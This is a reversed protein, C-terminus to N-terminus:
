SVLNTKAPRSLGSRGFSPSGVMPRIGSGKWLIANETPLIGVKALDHTAAHRKLAEALIEWDEPTFGCKKFWRAKEHGAPHNPSLLYDTIKPRPVTAKDVRPLRM